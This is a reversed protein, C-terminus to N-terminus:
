KTTAKRPKYDFSPVSPVFLFGKKRDLQAIAKSIKHLKYYAMLAERQRKTSGKLRIRKRPKINLLKCADDFTRIQTIASKTSKKSKKM